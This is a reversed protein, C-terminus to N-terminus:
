KRYMIANAVHVIYDNALAIKEEMWPDINAGNEICTHVEHAHSRITHLHAEVMKRKQEENDRLDESSIEPMEVEDHSMDDGMDDSMDDGMDDVPRVELGVESNSRDSFDIENEPSTKNDLAVDEYAEMLSVLDKRNM